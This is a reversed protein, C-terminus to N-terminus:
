IKIWNSPILDNTNYEQANFWKQPAYVMKTAHEGLFAAWWSFTSNAIIFHRCAKMLAFDSIDNGPCVENVLVGKGILQIIKKAADSDDSFFYPVVDGMAAVLEQYANVYYEDSCIGHISNVHPNSLYDGRRIHIAVSNQAYIEKKLQVHERSFEGKIDFESKIKASYSEFYKLSQWYGDLVVPASVSLFGSDFSFDKEAFINDCESLISKTSKFYDTLRFNRNLLFAVLEKKSLEVNAVNFHNLKFSRNPSESYFSKEIVLPVQYKLSLARGAAYQFLQNGLGGSLRVAVVM